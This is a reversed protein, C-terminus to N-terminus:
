EQPNLGQYIVWIGGWWFPFCFIGILTPLYIYLEYGDAREMNYMLDAIVILLAGLIGLGGCTKIRTKTTNNYEEM